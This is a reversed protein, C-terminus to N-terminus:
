RKTDHSHFKDFVIKEARINNEQSFGYTLYPQDTEDLLQKLCQDDGYCIILGRPRTKEIFLRYAEIINELDGYFDLHERDINTIISYDPSFNLFSGDSEDVEAVFYKGQGLLANSTTANVIGGVATTPELGARILLEAILSSTTTKGHAGAVTIGIYDKMLEALLKARMILPIEKEKASIMEPNDERIASSYIVQTAGDINKSDHELYIQAGRQQLKKTMKNECVDSGTVKCGKELLLLALAGMGIGGAGIFHYHTKMEKFVQDM